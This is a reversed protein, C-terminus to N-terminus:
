ACEELDWSLSVIDRERSIQRYLERLESVKMEKPLWLHFHMGDPGALEEDYMYGCLRSGFVTTMNRKRNFSTSRRIRM